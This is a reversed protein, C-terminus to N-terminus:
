TIIQNSSDENVQEEYAQLEKELTPIKGHRLEAAKNLDYKNEADELERRYRDLEERKQQIVQISEKEETWKNRMESSSQELEKLDERLIELRKQSAADKEKMLAQEEIQLQMMRRTVEDLEQPMSDIETRIM